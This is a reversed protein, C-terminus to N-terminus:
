KQKLINWLDQKYLEPYYRKNDNNSDNLTSYDKDNWKYDHLDFTDKIAKMLRRGDILGRSDLDITLGELEALKICMNNLDDTYVKNEGDSKKINTDHKILQNVLYHYPKSHMEFKIKNTKLDKQLIFSNNNEKKNKYVNICDFIFGEVESNTFGKNYPKEKKTGRFKHRFEIFIATEQFADDANKFIPMRNAVLLNKPVEEKPITITDRGKPYVDLDDYGRMQKLLGINEVPKSDIDRMINLHKGLLGSTVHINKETDQPKMDSVKSKGGFINAILNIFTSKGSGPVGVMFIMVEDQNGSCFLYGILEKVGLIYRDTDKLNGQDLSTNLFNTITPYSNACYNYKIEVITFIPNKPDILKFTTYDYIGNNFKIKDYEPKLKAPVHSLATELDKTNVLNKGILENIEEHISDLDISSYGNSQEYLKYLLHSIHQKEIKLSDTLIFSLDLNSKGINKRKSYNFQLESLIEKRDENKIFERGCEIIQKFDGVDAKLQDICNNKYGYLTEAIYGVHEYYSDTIDINLKNEELIDILINKLVNYLPFEEPDSSDDLREPNVRMTVSKYYKEGSDKEILWYYSNNPVYVLCFTINKVRQKPSAIPETINIEEKGDKDQYKLKFKM